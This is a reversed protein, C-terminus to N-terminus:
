TALGQTLILYLILLVMIIVLSGFFGAVLYGKSKENFFEEPKEPNIKLAIKTGVEKVGMNTYFDTAIERTQGNYWFSYIPAYLTNGKDSITTNHGIITADVEYTCVKELHKRKMIPIIVTCLGAILFASLLLLVIVMNWDVSFSLLEPHLMLFPIVICCLGVIMFPITILADKKNEQSFFVVSGFVLFYQGFNMVIYYPDEILFFAVFSCIFWLIFLYGFLKGRKEKKEQLYENDM